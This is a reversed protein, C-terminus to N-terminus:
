EGSSTKKPMGEELQAVKNELMSVKKILVEVQAALMASKDDRQKRRADARLMREHPVIVTMYHVQEQPTMAQFVRREEAKRSIRHKTVRAKTQMRTIEKKLGQTVMCVPPQGFHEVSATCDSSVDYSM